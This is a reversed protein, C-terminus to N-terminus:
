CTHDGGASIAIVGSTLGSVDVPTSSDTTTNNGLEGASNLGWCKVGGASTLVCTNYRSSSVAIVGLSPTPSSPTPTPTFTISPMVSPTQTVFGYTLVWPPLLTKHIIIGGGRNTPTPTIIGGGGCGILSLVLAALVGIQVLMGLPKM